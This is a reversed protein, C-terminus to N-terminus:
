CKRQSNPNQNESETALIVKLYHTLFISCIAFYFAIIHLFNQHFIVSESIKQQFFFFSGSSKGGVDCVLQMEKQNGQLCM